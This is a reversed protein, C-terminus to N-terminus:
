SSLGESSGRLNGRLVWFSKTRDGADDERHGGESLGALVRPRALRVGSVGETAGVEGRQEM